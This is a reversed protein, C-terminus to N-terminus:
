CCSGFVVYVFFLMSWCRCRPCLCCCPGFVVVHVHVLLLLWSCCYGWVVYPISRFYTDSVTHKTMHNTISRTGVLTLWPQLAVKLLRHMDKDKSRLKLLQPTIRQAMGSMRCVREQRALYRLAYKNNTAHGWSFSVLGMVDFNLNESFGPLRLLSEQQM